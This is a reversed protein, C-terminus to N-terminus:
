LKDIKINRRSAIHEATQYETTQRKRKSKLNIEILNEIRM